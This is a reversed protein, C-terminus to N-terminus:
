MYSNESNRGACQYLQVMTYQYNGELLKQQSIKRRGGADGLATM